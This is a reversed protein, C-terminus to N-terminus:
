DQGTRSDGGPSTSSSPCSSVLHSEQICLRGGEPCPRCEEELGARHYLAQAGEVRPGVRPGLEQELRPAFGLGEVGERAVWATAQGFCMGWPRRTEPLGRVQTERQVRAPPALGRGLQTPLGEVWRLVRMLAPFSARGIHMAANLMLVLTKIQTSKIMSPNSTPQANKNQTYVGNCRDRQKNKVSKFLYCISAGYGLILLM